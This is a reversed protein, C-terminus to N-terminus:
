TKTIEFSLQGDDYKLTKIKVDMDVKVEETTSKSQVIKQLDEWYKVKMSDIAIIRDGVQIGAKQAGYGDVLGGVKTTLQPYGAVFIFWFCFLGLLYNLLPGFFVIQFRRGPSQSFYEDAVGPHAEELTDGAMKVYGGLPFACLTYETDKRKWSFLKPGFGISFKEVRVGMKKAIIFHGFEHVVILISLIVVFIFFSSDM